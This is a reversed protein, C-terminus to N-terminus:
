AFPTIHSAIWASLQRLTLKGKEAQRMIELGMQPTARLVAGHMILYTSLVLWAARTNGSAVPKTDLMLQCVSAARLQLSQYVEAGFVRAQPRALAAWLLGYDQVAFGAEALQDALADLSLSV